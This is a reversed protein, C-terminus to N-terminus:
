SLIKRGGEAGQQTFHTYSGKKKKKKYNVGEKGRRVGWGVGGVIGSQRFAKKEGKEESKKRHGAGLKEVHKQVPARNGKAGV